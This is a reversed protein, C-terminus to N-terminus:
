QVSPTRKDRFDMAGDDRLSIKSGILTYLNRARSHRRSNFVMALRNSRRAVPTQGRPVRHREPDPTGRQPRRLPTGPRSGPFAAIVRGSGIRGTTTRPLVAYYQAGTGIRAGNGPAETCTTFGSPTPPQFSGVPSPSRTDTAPKSGQCAPFDQRPWRTLLMATKALTEPDDGSNYRTTTGGPLCVGVRSGHAPPLDQGGKGSLWKCFAVADNWSVCIVPHRTPRSSGRTGGPITRSTASNRRTLTWAM